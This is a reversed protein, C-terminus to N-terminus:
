PVEQFAASPRLQHCFARFRSEPLAHSILYGQVTDCGAESLFEIMDANEVGEACVTLGMSHAMSITSRIVVEADRVSGIESVFSRDIKLECFPLRVLQVLSSYGTGYDDMSLGFGKLRLRALSSMVESINRSAVGETVEFVVARSDVGAGYCLREM